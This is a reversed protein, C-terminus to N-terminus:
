ISSPETKILILLLMINLVNKLIDKRTLVRAINKHKTHKTKELMVEACVVKEFGAEIEIGLLPLAVGYGDFIVTEPKGVLM